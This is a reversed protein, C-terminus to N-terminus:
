IKIIYYYFTLLSAFALSITVLSPFIYLPNSNNRWMIFDALFSLFEATMVGGLIALVKSMKSRLQRNLRIFEILILITLIIGIAAIGMHVYWIKIM